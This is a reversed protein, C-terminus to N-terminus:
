HQGRGQIEQALVAHSGHWIDARSRPICAGLFQSLTCTSPPLESCCLFLRIAQAAVMPGHVEYLEWSRIEM